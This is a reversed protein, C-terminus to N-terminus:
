RFNAKLFYVGEKPVGHKKSLEEMSNLEGVISEVEHATVDVKFRSKMLGIASNVHDYNDLKANNYYVPKGMMKRIEDHVSLITNEKESRLIKMGNIANIFRQVITNSGKGRRDSGRVMTRMSDSYGGINRKIHTEIAEFPYVKGTDYMQSWEEPTKGRSNNPFKMDSPWSIDNAELVEHLYHGFEVMTEEALASGKKNLMIFNVTKIGKELENVLTPLDKRGEIDQLFELMRTLSELESAKVMTYGARGELALVKFLATDTKGTALARFIRRTKNTKTDFPLPDDFPKNSGSMPVVFYDLVAEILDDFEERAEEIKDLHDKRNKTGLHPMKQSPVGEGQKDAIASSPASARDLDDGADLIQSLNDLFDGIQRLRNNIGRATNLSIPDANWNEEIAFKSVSESLPLYYPGNGGRALTRELQNVYDNIEDDMDIGTAMERVAGAGLMAERIAQIDQAFAVTDKFAGTEKTFAHYYLPDVKKSELRKLKAGFLSLEEMEKKREAEMVEEESDLTEVGEVSVTEKFEGTTEDYYGESRAKRDEDERTEGRVLGSDEMFKEYLALGKHNRFYVEMDKPKFKVVYNMEDNNIASAFGLFNDLIKKFEQIEKNEKNEEILPALIKAFATRCNNYAEKFDGYKGQHDKWFSYIRNRRNLMKLDLEGIIQDADLQIIREEVKDFQRLVVMLPSLRDRVSPKQNELIFKMQEVEKKRINRNKLSVRSLDREQRPKGKISELYEEYAETSAFDSRKKVGSEITNKYTLQKGTEDLFARLVKDLKKVDVAISRSPDTTAEELDTTLVRGSVGGLELLKKIMSNRIADPIEEFEEHKSSIDEILLQTLEGLQKGSKQYKSSLKGNEMFDADDKILNYLFEPKFSRLYDEARDDAELEVKDAIAKPDEDKYQEAVMRETFEDFEDPELMLIRFANYLEEDSIM